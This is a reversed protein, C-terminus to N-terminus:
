SSLLFIYSYHILICIIHILFFTELKLGQTCLYSLSGSVSPYPIIFHTTPFSSTLPTAARHVVSPEDALHHDLPDFVPDDDCEVCTLSATFFSVNKTKEHIFVKFLFVWIIILMCKKGGLLLKCKGLPFPDGGGKVFM